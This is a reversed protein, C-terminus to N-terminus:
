TVWQPHIIYSSWRYVIFDSTISTILVCNQVYIRLAGLSFADVTDGHDPSPLEGSLGASMVRGGGALDLM